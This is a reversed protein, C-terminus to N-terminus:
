RRYPLPYPIGDFHVNVGVSVGGSEPIAWVIQGNGGYLDFVQSTRLVDYSDARILQVFGPDHMDRHVLWQWRTPSYFVIEYAGDPSRVAGQYTSGGLLWPVAVAAVAFLSVLVWCRRCRNERM